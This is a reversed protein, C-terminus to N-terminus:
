SNTKQHAKLILTFVEFILYSLCFGLQTNGQMANINGEIYNLPRVIALVVHGKLAHACADGLEVIVLPCFSTHVFDIIIPALEYLAKIVYM